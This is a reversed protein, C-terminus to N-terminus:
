IVGQIALAAGSIAVGVYGLNAVLNMLPQMMSSLFQSKWASQYLTDNTENFEETERGERNFAKIIDLGSFVEEVQGNVAGLYRQQAFFYKQSHKVVLRIVLTSLPIILLAILAMIWNITFMLVIVGVITVVSTVLTTVSQNLSQGFTDVDNTIRSLVDGTAHSEFYGLPMRGIKKAIDNRMRFCLRQTVTTMIWSQVFQFAASALYLGLALALIGAIQAFDIGGTGAIKAVLGQSLVTTANGLVRPGFVNFVTAAIAFVVAAVLAIKYAGMYSLLNRLTGQFDKAKEGGMM